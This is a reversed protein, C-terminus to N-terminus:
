LKDSLTKGQKEISFRHPGNSFRHFAKGHNFLEMVRLAEKRM